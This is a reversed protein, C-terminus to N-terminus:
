EGAKMNLYLNMMTKLRQEDDTFPTKKYAREVISDLKQYLLKLQEPMTDTRYLKALDGGLEERVDLIELAVSELENKRQSSLDPIPFTNYVLNSSCRYDNKLKGGVSRLWVMHM